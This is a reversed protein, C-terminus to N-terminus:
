LAPLWYLGLMFVPAAATLSDIRDLIGGHGPLLAGSDKIGRERKFLSEFLDGFVAALGTLLSLVVLYVLGETPLERWLGIGLGLLVCTALGGYLGEVTKGPSVSPIMKRRGLLKGACFAGTDAGWVLLLLMVLALPAAAHTKLGVLALWSPVLVALGILLRAVRSHFGSGGPYRLILVCAWLWFVFAAGLVWPLAQAGAVFHLGLLLAAVLAAYLWQAVGALASLNAWERAGMVVVAGAGLAFLDASLLFVASLVAVALVVGTLIRQKIM